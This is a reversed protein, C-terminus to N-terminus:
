YFISFFAKFFALIRTESLPLGRFTKKLISIGLQMKSRFFVLFFFNRSFPEAAGGGEESEAARVDAEHQGCMHRAPPSLPAARLALAASLNATTAATTFIGGCAILVSRFKECATVHLRCPQVWEAPAVEPGALTLVDRTGLM